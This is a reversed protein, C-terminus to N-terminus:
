YQEISKLEEEANKFKKVYYRYLVCCITVGVAALVAFSIYYYPLRNIWEDYNCLKFLIPLAAVTILLALVLEIIFFRAVRREQTIIAKQKKLVNENSSTIKLYGIWEITSLVFYVLSMLITAIGTWLYVAEESYSITYPVYVIVILLLVVLNFLEAVGMYKFVSNIRSFHVQKLIERNLKLNEDLNQEHSQWQRKLDDIEM